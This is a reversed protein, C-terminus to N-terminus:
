NEWIIWPAKGSDHLSQLERKEWLTDMARWFGTHKYAVLQNSRALNTLPTTELPTLDGELFDFVQPEMVFFGANIWGGRDKAKERFSSVQKGDSAFDILGYRGPPQVATVTAYKGCSRHFAVLQNIDINSVGDGYTVMFTTNNVYKSVRKLRGGTLTNQGTDVLTVNWPELKSDHFEVSNTQTHVTLDSQHLLYHYFFEKILHGKYGLCIVFDNFGYHSYIKMIHWLIPKGGIELMPKPKLDTEESLRSGIGGALIVVKM